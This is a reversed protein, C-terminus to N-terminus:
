PQLRRAFRLGPESLWQARLGRGTAKLMDGGRASKAGPAHAALAAEVRALIEASRWRAVREAFAQWSM